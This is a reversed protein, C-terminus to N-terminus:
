SRLRKFLSALWDGWGRNNIRSVAELLADKGEPQLALAREYCLQAQGYAFLREYCQGLRSWALPNESDMETSRSLMEKALHAEGNDLYAMGIRLEAYGDHSGEEKAKIFCGEHHQAPELCLLALGRLLWVRGAADKKAIARDSYTMADAGDGLKAAVLGRVALLDACQPFRDLAKNAWLKAEELEDLETLCLVQGTWAEWMNPNENLAKGYHRLAFEYNGRRYAAEAKDFYHREDFGADPPGEPKPKAKQVELWDFREM